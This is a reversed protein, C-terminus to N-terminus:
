DDTFVDADDPEEPQPAATGEPVIQDDRVGLVINLVLDSGAHRHRQQTPIQEAFAIQLSEELGQVWSAVTRMADSLCVSIGNRELTISDVPAHWRQRNMPNILPFSAGERAAGPMFLSATVQNKAPEVFGWSLTGFVTWNAQLAVNHIETELHQVTNRLEAVNATADMFARFKPNKKKGKSGPMNAILGRLRHLSDIIAWADLMASVTNTEEPDLHQMFSLQPLISTLRRHALDAMEVTLRVGELFLRQRHGLVSPIKRLTSDQAIIM